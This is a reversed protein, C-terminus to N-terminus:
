NQPMVIPVVLADVISCGKEHVIVPNLDVESIEGRLGYVVRSFQVILECLADIDLAPKGRVGKLLRSIRLESIMKRAAMADIPALQSVRDDMLEVLVGGAAVMVLPGYQPDNKMGIAIEIGAEAMPMILVEKGLRISLDEYATALSLENKLSLKVGDQDSKHQIGRAATKMVVPYGFEKAKELAYDLNDVLDHTITPLGFDGMLALSTAESSEDLTSLPQTWVHVKEPDLIMNNGTTGMELEHPNEMNYSIWLSDRYNKLNRLSRLAVDLGNVMPIGEHCLEAATESLSTYTFSNIVLVPKESYKHLERIVDFMVPYHTFGDRFEFEFTLLSTAPDDLLAKGCELYTTGTNRGLAGMADLPNDPELGYELHDDLTSRTNESIEGFGLGYDDALDIMLERMGGSDLLGALNGAGMKKDMSLLMATVIMEDPAKTLIAGYRQCLAIFADHNGVIAGSHSVALEASKETRGLKTIVVPIQKSKAKRLALVFGDVDRVAELFIAIVRTSPQELLYDMYDAATANTEQGSAIVYNYCFRADNNALYTMGSGSHAIFGIHGPPRSAPPHDFSVFVGHDYNYFGMSNGGCVPVGAKQAAEKLRQPLPPETDGAFHNSAYIVIGGVGIELAEYFSIELGRGSIAYVVLNPVIPLQKLSDYCTKGFLLPYKPNVSYIEGDFGRHVLQHHTTAALSGMRESAGIIAISKPSLLRKLWHEPM